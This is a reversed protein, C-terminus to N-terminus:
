CGTPIPSAGAAPPAPGAPDAATRATPHPPRRRGPRPADRGSAPHACGLPLPTQHSPPHLTTRRRIRRGRKIDVGPRGHLKAALPGGPHRYYLHWGGGGTAVTATPAMLARDLQGGNRPDIDVVVLGSVTGTRIALLGGPVESVMAKLRAPDTTAAYFGHCTLCGCTAADHTMARCRACNAIPRKTRGLLFVPWGVAAYRLAETLLATRDSM